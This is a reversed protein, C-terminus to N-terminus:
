ATRVFDPSFRGLLHETREKALITTAELGIWKTVIVDQGPRIRAPSLLESKKIKGVGTVSIVPQNVVNTIETHGGFIEMNLRSCVAEADQVMRRIEPEEVTDPLMVTLMVGLPEAGSAALDNATIHICHSGIDQVTGTIPDSSMVLVEDAGVELAACDVGVSPGMLIEERRHKVQKLVSRILVPEPLKGIKM